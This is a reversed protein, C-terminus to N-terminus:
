VVQSVINHDYAMRKRSACIYFVPSNNPNTIKKKEKPSLQIVYTPGTLPGPFLM